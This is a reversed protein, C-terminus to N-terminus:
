QWIYEEQPVQPYNEFYNFHPLGKFHHAETSPATVLGLFIMLGLCTILGRITRRHPVRCDPQM